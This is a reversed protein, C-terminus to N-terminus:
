NPNSFVQGRKAKLLGSSWCSANYLMPLTDSSGEPLREFFFLVIDFPNLVTRAYYEALASGCLM